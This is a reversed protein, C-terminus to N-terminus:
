ARASAWSATAVKEVPALAVMVKVDRAALLAKVAKSFLVVAASAFTEAYSVLTSVIM